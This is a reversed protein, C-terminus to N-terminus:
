CRTRFGTRMRWDSWWRPTRAHREPGAGVRIVRGACPYGSRRPLRKTRLTPYDATDCLLHGLEHVLVWKLRDEGTLQIYRLLDEYVRGNDGLAALRRNLYTARMTIKAKSDPSVDRAYQQWFWLMLSADLGM